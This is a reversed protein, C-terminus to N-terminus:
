FSFYYVLELFYEKLITYILKIIAASTTIFALKIIINSKLLREEKNKFFNLFVDTIEKL